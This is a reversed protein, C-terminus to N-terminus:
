GYLNNHVSLFYFTVPALYNYVQLLESAKRDDKFDGSSIKDWNQEGYKEVAATLKKDEGASWGKRKKKPPLNVGSPESIPRKEGITMASAQPQKQVFVPITINMGQIACSSDSAASLSKINPINITLPAEITSNSPLDPDNSCGSAM